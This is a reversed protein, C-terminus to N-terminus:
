AVSSTAPRYPETAGLLEWKLHNIYFTLIAESYTERFKEFVRERFASRGIM